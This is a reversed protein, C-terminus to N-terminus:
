VYERSLYRSFRRLIGFEHVQM